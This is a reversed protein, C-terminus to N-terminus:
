RTIETQAKATAKELFKPNSGPVALESRNLRPTCQEVITFSMIFVGRTHKIEYILIKEYKDLVAAEPSGSFALNSIAGAFMICIISFHLLVLRIGAVHGNM